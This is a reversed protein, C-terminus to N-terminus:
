KSQLTLGSHRATFKYRTKRTEDRKCHDIENKIAKAKVFSPTQKQKAAASGNNVNINSM